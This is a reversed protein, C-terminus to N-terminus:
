LCVPKASAEWGISTATPQDEADCTGSVGDHPVYEQDGSVCSNLDSPDDIRPPVQSKSASLINNNSILDDDGEKLSCQPYRSGFPDYQWQSPVSHGYTGLNSADPVPPV